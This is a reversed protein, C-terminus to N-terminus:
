LVRAWFAKLYGTEPCHMAVPHDPAASRSEFVQVTRGPIRKGNEDFGGSRAASQVIQQFADASLLGACSCTLLLGGRKVLQLALRNLDFHKHSGEELEARSRILKPPDLVVIDFQKRNRLMDRMYAFADAHVFRVKAHNIAANKKATALAEEDLDVGTVETAEGATAAAVSFGGTYCCLDLVSKGRSHQALM